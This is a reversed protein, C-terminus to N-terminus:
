AVECIQQQFWELIERKQVRDLCYSAKPKVWKNRSVDHRMKLTPRNCFTQQDLRAKVNDKTKEPIDFITSFISEVVNKENHMVDINRPLLLKYFYPLRWLDPIHSWKHEEGYGEFGNGDPSPKL